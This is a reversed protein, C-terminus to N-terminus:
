LQGSPCIELWTSAVVHVAHEPVVGTEFAARVIHTAEQGGLQNAEDEPTQVGQAFSPTDGAPEVEAEAQWAVYTKRAGRSQGDRVTNEVKVKLHM